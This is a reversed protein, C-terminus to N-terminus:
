SLSCCGYKVVEAAQIRSGAQLRPGAEIPLNVLSDSGRGTHPARRRDPAQSTDYCTLNTIKNLFNDVKMHVMYWYKIKVSFRRMDLLHLLPSCLKNYRELFIRVLITQYMDCHAYNGVQFKKAADFKYKLDYSKRRKASAM